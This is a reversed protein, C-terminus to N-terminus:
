VSSASLKGKEAALATDEEGLGISVGHHSTVPFSFGREGRTQSLQFPFFVGNRRMLSILTISKTSRGSNKGRPCQHM